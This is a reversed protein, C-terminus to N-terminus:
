QNKLKAQNTKDNLFILYDWSGIIQKDTVYIYDRLRVALM